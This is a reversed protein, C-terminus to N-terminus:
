FNTFDDDDMPIVQNPNVEQSNGATIARNKDKKIKPSHSPQGILHMTTKRAGDNIKRAGGVMISLEEVLIKMQEAQANLEESASASEEANAANQQIVKDMETVATNVQGIGQAQENSAASIEGVLEGVKVGSEAVKAFEDNTKNVLESGEGVKKVTGEILVATSKAAEASRLALNRVEEAVVAFGAGAEGARAAEVAANLALLNTQFAIEDITKVVKQTEDSAASLEQMAVTLKEMSQNAFAVVQNTDKMLSDAQGANDANQKTMSSIEELSSSTEEISAAQESSGEALSQSASSVQGAASAVQDSGETLGEIVRNIATTINKIIFASVIIGIIIAIILGSIMIMSAASLSAATEHAIRDTATMGANALSKCADIVKQGATGRKKDLDQLTHWNDLFDGMAAKYAGGAEKTNNLREIDVAIRTIDRLSDFKANIKDLKRMSVHMIEPNRLAQSKFAGIRSANGIGIIDNVLSIKANRETMDKTLKQQQGEFFDACNKVYIGANEDMSKRYNKLVSKHAANGKSSEALFGGMSNKYGKAAKEIDNIRRIDDKAISIKRLDELVPFTEDMKIIAHEMFSSSNLAQSKFNSVRADSGLSVLRTVLKIKEQRANLDKKFAKNQDSLFENCNQMYKAASEDLTKRDAAMIANVNVTEQVLKKYEAVAEDALDLQGKLKKLHVAKNELERGTEIAKKVALLEKQANDYFRKKETFGYGRMEYMMRNAAGRLDNAMIVEIVYEDALITTQNASKKMNFSGIGGIIILIIILIGFGLAIKVGLTMNKM